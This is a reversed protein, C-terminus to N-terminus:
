KTGSVVDVRIVNEVFYKKISDYERDFMYRLSEIITHHMARGVKGAFM